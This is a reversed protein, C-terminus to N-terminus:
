ESHYERWRGVGVCCLSVSNQLFSRQIAKFPTFYGATAIHDTL